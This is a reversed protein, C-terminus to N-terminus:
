QWSTKKKSTSIWKSSCNNHVTTLKLAPEVKKLDGDYTAWIGKSLSIKYIPAIERDYVPKDFDNVFGDATLRKLFNEANPEDEYREWILRLYGKLRSRNSRFYTKSIELGIEEVMGELTTSNKLEHTQPTRAKTQTLQAQKFLELEDPLVVMTCEAIKVPQIDFYLGTKALAVVQSATLEGHRHINFHTYGIQQRFRQTQDDYEFGPCEFDSYDYSYIADRDLIVDPDKQSEINFLCQRHLRKFRQTPFICCGLAKGHKVNSASLNFGGLLIYIALRGKVGQHIIDEVSCSFGDRRLHDVANELTLYDREM